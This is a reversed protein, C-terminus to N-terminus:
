RFLQRYIAWASVIGDLGQEKVQTVKAVQGVQGKEARGGIRGMRQRIDSESILRM